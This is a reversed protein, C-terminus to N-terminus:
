LSFVDSGKHPLSKRRHALGDVPCFNEFVAKYNMGYRFIEEVTLQIKRCFVRIKRHSSTFDTHFDQTGELIAFLGAFAVRQRFNYGLKRIFVNVYIDASYIM